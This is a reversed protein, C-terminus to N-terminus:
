VLSPLELVLMMEELCCRCRELVISVMGGGVGGEM